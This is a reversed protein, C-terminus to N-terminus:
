RDASGYRAPPTDALSITEVFYSETGDLCEEGQGATADNPRGSGLLIVHANNSVTHVITQLRLRGRGLLPQFTLHFLGALGPPSLYTNPIRLFRGLRGYLPRLLRWVTLHGSRFGM